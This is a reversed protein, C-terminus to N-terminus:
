RSTGPRTLDHREHHAKRKMRLTMRVRLDVTCGHAVGQEGLTLQYSMPKGGFSLCQKPVPIQTAMEIAEHLMDLPWSAKVLVGKTQLLSLDRVFVQQMPESGAAHSLREACDQLAKFPTLAAIFDLAAASTPEAPSDFEATRRRFDEVTSLQGDLRPLKVMSTQVERALSQQATIANVANNLSYKCQAQLEKKANARLKEIADIAAEAVTDVRSMLGAYCSEVRGVMARTSASQEECTAVVAELSRKTAAGTDDLAAVPHGRHDGLLACKDCVLKDCQKCYYEVPTGAHVACVKQQSANILECIAKLPLNQPLQDSVRCSKRCTPCKVKAAGDERPMEELCSACFTHNCALSCPASMLEFCIACQLEELPVPVLVSSM